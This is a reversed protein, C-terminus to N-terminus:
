RRAPGALGGTVKELYAIEVHLEAGPVADGLHDVADGVVKVRALRQGDEALGADPLDTVAWAIM